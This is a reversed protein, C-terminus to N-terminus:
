LIITRKVDTYSIDTEQKALPFHEEFLLFDWVEMTMQFFSENNHSVLWLIEYVVHLKSRRYCIEASYQFKHVYGSRMSTDLSVLTSYVHISKKTSIVKSKFDSVEMNKSFFSAEHEVFFDDMVQYYYSDHPLLITKM